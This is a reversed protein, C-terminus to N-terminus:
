YARSTYTNMKSNHGSRSSKATSYSAGAMWDANTPSHPQLVPPSSQSFNGPTDNALSGVFSHTFDNSSKTQYSIKVPKECLSLFCGVGHRALPNPAVSSM